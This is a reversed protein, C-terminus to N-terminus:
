GIGTILITTDLFDGSADGAIVIMTFITAQLFILTCAQNLTIIIITPSIIRRVM